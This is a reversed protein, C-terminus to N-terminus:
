KVKQSEMLDDFWEKFGNGGDYYDKITLDNEYASKFTDRLGNYYEKLEKISLEEFEKM